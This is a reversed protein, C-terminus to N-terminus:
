CRCRKASDASAFREQMDQWIRKRANECGRIKKTYRNGIIAVAPNGGQTKAKAQVSSLTLRTSVNAVVVPKGDDLYAFAASGDLNECVDRLRGRQWVQQLVDDVPREEQYSFRTIAAKAKGPPM